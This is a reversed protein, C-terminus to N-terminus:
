WWRRRQRTAGRGGSGGPLGEVINDVQNYGDWMYRPTGAIGEGKGSVRNDDSNAVYLNNINVGTTVKILSYGGRFGRGSVDITYGNFDMKGAVSFAIIGGASGNFPPPSINSSLRLNAYQPLRIIQFSRQGMTATPAANTYTYVTGNSAGSGKFNLVGGTLPVDNTAIIYEFRGSNGMSTFGTGGLADYGSTVSNAGYLTTNSYNITADQMQIILLLDGAKIPTSGFNNGHTDTAPVVGITISNTGAALTLNGKPPFYTNISGNINTTGDNGSTACITPNTPPAADSFSERVM